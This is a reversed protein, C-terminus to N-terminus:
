LRGPESVLGSLPQCGDHKPGTGGGSFGMTKRSNAGPLAQFGAHSVGQESAHVTREAVTGGAVLPRTARVLGLFDADHDIPSRTSLVSTGAAMPMRFRPSM